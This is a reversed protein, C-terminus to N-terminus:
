CTHPGSNLGWYGWVFSYKISIGTKTCKIGHMGLQTKQEAGGTNGKTFVPTNM